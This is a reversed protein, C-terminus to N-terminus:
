NSKRTSAPRKRMEEFWAFGQDTAHGPNFFLDSAMARRTEGHREPHALSETVADVVTLPDTVVTGGKRGWTELDLMPDEKAASRKLLEPVDLFVMPRDLLSFESSVSSADTILLDAISLLKIVDLEQTIRFNPGSLRKLRAEWDIDFKAHDHRKLVVDFKGSAALQEIVTEGMTELSNYKQGTPAYLVIPRRGDLGQAALLDERKLSGDRLRDTKMFGVKVSRPDNEQLLGSETFRRTMYPGVLFYHDCKMNAPRIARNRFSVGHFIQVTSGINRPKLLTTNGAFLFDFDQQKMQEVSLVRDRPIGLPDYMAKEDYSTGSETERELGGSVFVEVDDLANMREHLPRFCLYHVPAYGTFLVRTKNRTTM